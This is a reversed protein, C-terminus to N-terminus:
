PSWPNAWLEHLVGRNTREGYVSNSAMPSRLLAGSGTLYQQDRFEQVDDCKLENIRTDEVRYAEVANWGLIRNRISREPHAKGDTPWKNVRPHKRVYTSRALANHRPDWADGDLGHPLNYLEKGKESFQFNRLAVIESHPSGFWLSDTGWCIRLPGVYKIMKGLYHSADRTNQMVSRWVSGTEAYVNPVNGHELGAPIFKTADWGNERLSKVLCDTGRDASNVKNDGAYEHQADGDYGSHYILFKVKPFQRAAPGVDRPSACRQDFAPLAFGKHVAIIPPMNYEESVKQVQDCFQLGVHDDMYWGSQYPVDGWATYIKWGRIKDGYMEKNLRMQEFEEQMFIPDVGTGGPTSSYGRNPMVFAHMYSRTTGSLEKITDLTLAAEAVPLPQNNPDAPVASLITMNTASDLFLEKMYHFRGLNEIPDVERGGRFPTDSPWYPDPDVSGGVGGAQPWIAAFFAEIAPNTARWTGNPDVHHSQVDFVFEGPPNGLQAGPFELDCAQNTLTNHANVQYGGWTTGTIQNIAWLGVSFAAASRVFDRRSMNLIRRAKETEREALAMIALQDPTPDGPLYEGNSCPLVDVPLGEWPDPFSKKWTIM